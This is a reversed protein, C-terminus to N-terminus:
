KLLKEEFTEKTHPMRSAIFLLIGGIIIGLFVNDLLGTNPTTTITVTAQTCVNEPQTLCVQNTFQGNSSPATVQYSIVIQQNPPVSQLADGDFTWTLTQGSTQPTFTVQSGSVTTLRANGSYSFGAPLTDTVVQPAANTSSINRITISYALTSSPAATSPAVAKTVSFTTGTATDAKASLVFFPLVMLACITIWLTKYM